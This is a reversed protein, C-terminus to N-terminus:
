DLIWNELDRKSRETLFLGPLDLNSISIFHCEVHLLLYLTAEILLSGIPRKQLLVRCFLGIDKLHFSVGYAIHLIPLSRQTPEEYTQLSRIPRKQLLARCFSISIFHFEVYLLRYLTAVILLSGIPRKQLVVRCFLGINQM